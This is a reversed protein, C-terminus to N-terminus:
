MWSPLETLEEEEEEEAVRMWSPLEDSEDVEVPVEPAVESEEEVPRMWKPIELDISQQIVPKNLRELREQATELGIPARAPM